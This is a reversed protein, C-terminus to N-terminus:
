GTAKDRKAPRRWAILGLLPLGIAIWLLLWPGSGKAVAEASGAPGLRSRWKLEIGALTASLGREVGGACTAGDRYAALLAQLGASGYDDVIQQVVGQSEAYALLAASADTSFPGCLADIPILRNAAFADQLAVAQTPNPEGENLTALGEDLWAPVAQYDPTTAIFVMLHTLEHPIERRMQILAGDGPPIAVMVVGFEPRAQGGLWPRGGLEVASRLDDVSAYIYIDIPSPPEVGSQQQIRPLAENAVSAAATSFGSDGRYWHVRVPGSTIEQWNFRNDIYALTRTETRITKSSQDAVEWWYSITSFAPLKTEVLNVTAALNVQNAPVFSDAPQSLPPAGGSQFFLTAQTVPSDSSASLSFIMSRAFTYSADISSVTIGDARASGIALAVWTIVILLPVNRCRM